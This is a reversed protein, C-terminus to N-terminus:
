KINVGELVLVKEKNIHIENLYEFIDDELALSALAQEIARKLLESDVSVENVEMISCIGKIFFIKDFFCRNIM